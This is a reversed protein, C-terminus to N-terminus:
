MYRTEIHNNPRTRLKIVSSFGGVATDAKEIRAAREVIAHLRHNGLLSREGIFGGGFGLVILRM